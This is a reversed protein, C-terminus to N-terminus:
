QTIRGDAAKAPMNRAGHENMAFGTKDTKAISHSLRKDPVNSIM